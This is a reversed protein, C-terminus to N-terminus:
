SRPDNPHDNLPQNQTTPPVVHMGHRPDPGSEEALRRLKRRQAFVIGAAGGFILYVLGGLFIVSWRTGDIMPDEAEGYCVPCAIAPAAALLALLLTTAVLTVKTRTSV